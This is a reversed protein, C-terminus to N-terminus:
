LKLHCFIVGKWSTKLFQLNIWLPLSATFHFKDDDGDDDTGKVGQPASPM